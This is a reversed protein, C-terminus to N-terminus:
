GIMCSGGGLAFLECQLEGKWEEEGRDIKASKEDEM